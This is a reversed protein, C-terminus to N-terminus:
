KSFFLQRWDSNNEAHWGVADLLKRPSALSNAPNSFLRLFDAPAEMCPSWSCPYLSHMLTAKNWSFPFVCLLVQNCFRMECVWPSFYWGSAIARGPSRWWTRSGETEQTFVQNLELPWTLYFWFPKYACRKVKFIEEHFNVICMM